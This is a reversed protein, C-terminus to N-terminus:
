LVSTPEFPVQSQRMSTFGGQYVIIHDLLEIGHLHLASNFQRTLQLDAQSWSTNGSPHNHALLVSHANGLLCISTMHALDAVCSTKGGIGIRCWGISKKGANFLVMLIEERLEITKTDWISLLLRYADQPTRIPKSSAINPHTVYELRLEAMHPSKEIVTM